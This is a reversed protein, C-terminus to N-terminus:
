NMLPARVLLCSRSTWGFSNEAISKAWKTLDGADLIPNKIHVNALFAKVLEPANDEDVGRSHTTSQLTTQIDFIEQPETLDSNGLSQDGHYSMMTPNFVAAGLDKRWLNHGFIPWDLIHQSVSQHNVSAELLEIEHIAEEITSEFLAAKAASTISMPSQGTVAPRETPQQMHKAQAKLLSVAHNVRELIALSAADFSPYILM